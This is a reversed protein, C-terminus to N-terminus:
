HFIHCENKGFCASSWAHLERPCLQSTPSPGDKAKEKESGQVRQKPAKAWDWVQGNRSYCHRGSEKERLTCRSKFVLSLRLKFLGWNAM